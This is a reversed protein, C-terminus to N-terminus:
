QVIMKGTIIKGNKMRVTYLYNGPAFTEASIILKNGAFKETYILQGNASFFSIEKEEDPSIGQLTLESTTHVPNPFVRCTIEPQQIENVGTIHLPNFEWLDNYNTGSTGCTVYAINGIVFSASNERGQGPFTNVEQWSNLVPDYEWFDVEDLIGGTGLYGKGGVAFGVAQSRASGGFNAKQMWANNSPDFQWWDGNENYLNDNGTGIYIKNGITFGVADRRGDVPFASVYAWTNNAPDYKYVENHRYYAIDWDDGFFVYGNNNVVAASAGFMPTGTFSAKTTWTNTVPNYEYFDSQSYLFEDLGCGAYGKNGITFGFASLRPGPPYDSKQAWSNTGPDYEWVDQYMITGNWGCGLYGRSGISFTFPRHRANGPMSAKQTWANQAHISFSFIAFLLILFFRSPTM